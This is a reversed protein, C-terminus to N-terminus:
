VAEIFSGTRGDVVAEAVVDLSSQSGESQLQTQSKVETMKISLFLKAERSQNFCFSGAM